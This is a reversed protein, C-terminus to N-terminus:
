LAFWAYSDANFVPYKVTEKNRRLNRVNVPGYAWDRIHEGHYGHITPSSCVTRAVERRSHWEWARNCVRIRPPHNSTFLIAPRAACRPRRGPDTVDIVDQKDVLVQALATSGCSSGGHLKQFVTTVRSRAEPPFYIDFTPSNWAATDVVTTVLRMADYFATTLNHIHGTDAPLEFHQLKYLPCKLLFQDWEPALSRIKPKLRVNQSM